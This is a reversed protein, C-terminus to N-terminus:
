ARADGDPLYFKLTREFAERAGVENTLGLEQRARQTSPTYRPALKGPVAATHIQIETTSRKGAMCATEAMQKISLVDQSGVNYPRLSKGFAFIHLLWVVMDTGYQLSRLPTGDGKIHIKEAKLVAQVFNGAAFHTDLPLYPGLFAFCRAVLFTAEQQRSWLAGMLEAVRKGEGYAAAAAFPDPATMEDESTLPDAETKEGYVAGSSTLMLKKIGLQTAVDLIRKMGEINTELM